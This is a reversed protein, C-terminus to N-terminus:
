NEVCKRNLQCVVVSEWFIHKGPHLFTSNAEYYLKEVYM